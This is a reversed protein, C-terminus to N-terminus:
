AAATPPRAVGRARIRRVPHRGRRRAPARAYGRTAGLLAGSLLIPLYNFLSNPISDLCAIAVMLAFAAVLRRDAASPIRPLRRYAFFVPLALMGYTCALGVVGRQGMEIIWYGDSVSRDLGEEDYVRSRGFGGWGFWPRLNAKDILLKENEFRFALSAAREPHISEAVDLIPGEPVLGLTRPIPYSLAIACVVVAIRAQLRPSTLAVLPAGVVAYLTSALSKCLVVIVCLWGSVLWGHLGLVSRGARVLASAAIASTALLATLALGNSMFVVPQYGGYRLRGLFGGTHTGYLWRHFQPSLRLEVLIPLSYLLGAVALAVALDRLSAPTPYLLRGIFFPVGFGLISRVAMSVGDYPKLGPLVTPGYILLDPNLVATVFGSLILVVLLSEVGRGPKSAALRQPLYLACALLVAISACETKGFPPLLPLDYEVSNPLLMVGGLLVAPAALTPRLMAFAIVGTPLWAWIALHAIFNGENM